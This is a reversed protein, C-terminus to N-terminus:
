ATEAERFASALAKGFAQAASNRDVTTMLEALAAFDEPKVKFELESEGPGTTIFGRLAVADELAFMHANSGKDSWKSSSKPGRKIEITM